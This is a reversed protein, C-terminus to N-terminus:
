VTCYATDVKVWNNGNNLICLLEKGDKATYAWIDWFHVMHVLESRNMTKCFINCFMMNCIDKRSTYYTSGEYAKNHATVTHVDMCVEKRLVEIYLGMCSNVMHEVMDLQACATYFTDYDASFLFDDCFFKVM